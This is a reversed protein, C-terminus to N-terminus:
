IQKRSVDRVVLFSLIPLFLENWKRQRHNEGLLDYVLRGWQRIKLGFQPGRPRIFNKSVTGEKDRSWFTLIVTGEKGRSWFTLIVTGEKDRSWFTLIVPGGKDRSCFTLIVGGGGGGMQLDPEDVWKWKYNSRYPTQEESYQMLPPTSNLRAAGTASPVGHPIRLTLVTLQM